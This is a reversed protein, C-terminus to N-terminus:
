GETPETRRLPRGVRGERPPSALRSMHCPEGWFETTRRPDVRPRLSPADHGAEKQDAEQKRSHLISSRKAFVQAFTPPVILVDLATPRECRNRSIL